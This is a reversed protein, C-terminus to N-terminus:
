AARQGDQTGHEHIAFIADALRTGTSALKALVRLQEKCPLSTTPTPYNLAHDIEGWVEEFLTRVQIECTLDVREQPKVIYHISTYYTDRIEARLGLGTFFATAEPDWSYAIPPEALYWYGQEIHGITAQHITEFQRSHLHLVRVGAADNIRTFFNTADIPGDMWKRKIKERLHDADKVRSKVSHVAPLPASNLSRSTSFFDAVQKRFLNVEDRRMEFAALAAEIEEPTPSVASM